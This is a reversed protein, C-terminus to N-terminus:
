SSSDHGSVTREYLDLMEPLKKELSYQEDIMRMGAAGLHRYRDPADLVALAQRTFGDVDYFDALLDAPLCGDFQADLDDLRQNAELYAATTLPSYGHIRAVFAASSM